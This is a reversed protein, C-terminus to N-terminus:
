HEAVHSATPAPAITVSATAVFTQVPNRITARVAYVGPAAYAHVVSRGVATTNDGFDWSFTHAACDFSYLYAFAQFTLPDGVPCAAAGGSSCSDSTNTYAVYVNDSTMLLCPNTVPPSASHRRSSPMSRLTTFQLTGALPVDKAIVTTTNTSADSAALSVRTSLGGPAPIVQITYQGSPASALMLLAIPADFGLFRDELYVAGAPLNGREYVRGSPDIVRLTPMSDSALPKAASTGSTFLGFSYAGVHVRQLTSTTLPDLNLFGQLNLNLGHAGALNFFLEYWSQAAQVGLTLWEELRDAYQVVLVQDSRTCSAGGPVAATLTVPVVGATSFSTTIDAGVPGGSSGTFNWAFTPTSTCGNTTAAAHFGIMTNRQTVYPGTLSCATIACSTIVITGNRTCTQADATTTVQWTYTGPAGYTHVPNQVASTTSDGFTWAYTPTGTCNTPTATATFSVPTSTQGTSPVSTTCTIACSPSTAPQLSVNDAHIRFTAVDGTRAVSIRAYAANPQTTFAHHYTYWVGASIQQCGSSPYNGTCAGALEDSLWNNSADLLTLTLSLTGVGQGPPIFLSTAFVYPTSSKIAVTQTIAPFHAGQDDFLVSGSQPSAAADVPSWSVTTGSPQTITWGALDHQFSGNTVLEQASAASVLLMIVGVLTAIRVSSQASKFANHPTNEVRDTMTSWV